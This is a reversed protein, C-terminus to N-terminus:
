RIFDRITFGYGCWRVSYLYKWQIHINTEIKAEDYIKRLVISITEDLPANTFLTKVNFSIMQNQRPISEKKLRNIFDATNIIAYDSKALLARLNALYKATNYTATGVNSVIPRM